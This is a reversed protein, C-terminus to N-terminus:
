FHLALFFLANRSSTNGCNSRSWLSSPVILGKWLFSRYVCRKCVSIKQHVKKCRYKYNARRAGCARAFSNATNHAFNGFTVTKKVFDRSCFICLVRFVSQTLCLRPVKLLTVQLIVPNKLSGTLFHHLVVHSIFMADVVGAWLYKSKPADSQVNQKTQSALAM